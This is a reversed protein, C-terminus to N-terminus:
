EYSKGWYGFIWCYYYKSMVRKNEIKMIKKQVKQKQKRYSLFKKKTIFETTDSIAYKKKIFSMKNLKIVRKLLDTHYDIFTPVLLSKPIKMM